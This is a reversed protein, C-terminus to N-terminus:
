IRFTYLIYLLAGETSTGKTENEEDVRKESASPKSGYYVYILPSKM